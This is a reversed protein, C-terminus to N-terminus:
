AETFWYDLLTTELRNPIVMIRSECNLEKRAKITEQMKLADACVAVM